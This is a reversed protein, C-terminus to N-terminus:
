VKRDNRQTHNRYHFKLSQSLNGFPQGVGDAYRYGSNRRVEDIYNQIINEHFTKESQFRHTHSSSGICCQNCPNEGNNEQVDHHFSIGDCSSVNVLQTELNRKEFLFHEM